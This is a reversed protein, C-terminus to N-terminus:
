TIRAVLSLVNFKTSSIKIINFQLLTQDQCDTIIDVNYRGYFVEPSFSYERIQLVAM